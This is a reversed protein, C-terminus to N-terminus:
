RQLRHISERMRPRQVKIGKGLLLQKIMNEGCFPFDEVIKSVNIDLQQDTIESFDLKALAM